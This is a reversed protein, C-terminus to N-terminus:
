ASKVLIAILFVISINLKREKLFLETVIPSLMKNADMDAIMGDLVILMKTKKTPNYDKPNEYVDDITQSNDILGNPNKFIKIGAKKMVNILLQDM